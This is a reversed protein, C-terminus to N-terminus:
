YRLCIKTLNKLVKTVNTKLNNSIKGSYLFNVIADLENESCPCFIELDIQSTDTASVFINRMFKTQYLIEKHINFRTGEESYLICDAERHKLFSETFSDHEFFKTDNILKLQNVMM